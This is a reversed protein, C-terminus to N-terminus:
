GYQYEVISTMNAKMEVSWKQVASTRPWYSQIYLVIALKAQENLLLVVM